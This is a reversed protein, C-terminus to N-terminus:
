PAKLAGAGARVSNARACMLLIALSVYRVRESKDGTEGLRDRLKFDKHPRLASRYQPPALAPSSYRLPLVKSLRQPPEM